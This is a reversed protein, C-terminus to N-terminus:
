PEQLSINNTIDEGPNDCPGPYWALVGQALAHCWSDYDEGDCGCVRPQMANCTFRFNSFFKKVTESKCRNQVCGGQKWNQFGAAEAECSNSFQIVGCACVPDIVAPCARVIDINDPNFCGEEILSDLNIDTGYDCRGPTSVLVGNRLAECENRYTIGNCGCVYDPESPCAITNYLARKVPESYCKQELCSGQTYNQFGFAEATCGNGFTITECACVPDYNAPCNGILDINLPNFCLRDIVNGADITMGDKLEIKSEPLAEDVTTKQCSWLVAMGLLLVFSLLTLANKKM